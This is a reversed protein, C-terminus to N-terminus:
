ANRIGPLLSAARSAKSGDARRGSERDRGSARRAMVEGVNQTTRRRVVSQCGRFGGVAVEAKNVDQVCGHTDM